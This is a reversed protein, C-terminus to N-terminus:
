RHWSVPDGVSGPAGSWLGRWRSRVSSWTGVAQFVEAVEKWSLRKAWSPLFWAYAQTLPHKGEAWPMEEVRAGCGWCRVRAAYVLFVKMGWLPVFEFHRAALRDYGPGSRGCGSCVPGSNARTHV